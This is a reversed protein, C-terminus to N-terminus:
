RGLSSHRIRRRGAALGQHKGKQSAQRTSLALETRWLSKPTEASPEAASEAPASPEAQFELKTM